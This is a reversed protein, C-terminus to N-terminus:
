NDDKEQFYPFRKRLESITFSEATDFTWTGMGDTITIVAIKVLGKRKVRGRVHFAIENEDEKSM